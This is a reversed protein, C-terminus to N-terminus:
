CARRGEWELRDVIRALHDGQRISLNGHLQSVNNVFAREWSTLRWSPSLCFAARARHQAEQRPTYARRWRYVGFESVAPAPAMM